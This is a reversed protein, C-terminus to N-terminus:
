HAPPLWNFHRITAQGEDADAGKELPWVFVCPLKGSNTAQVPDHCGNKRFRPATTSFPRSSKPHFGLNITPSSTRHTLPLHQSLIPINFKGTCKIVAVAQRHINPIFSAHVASIFTLNLLRATAIGLHPHSARLTPIITDTPPVQM